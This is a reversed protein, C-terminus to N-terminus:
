FISCFALSLMQIEFNEPPAHGWVGGLLAHMRCGDRGSGGKDLDQIRGQVHNRILLVVQFAQCGSSYLVYEEPPWDDMELKRPHKWDQVELTLDVTEYDVRAMYLRSYVLSGNM